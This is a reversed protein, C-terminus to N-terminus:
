KAQELDAIAEDFLALVEAQTRGPQDNWVWLADSFGRLQLVREVALLADVDRWVAGVACWEVARDSPEVERGDAARANVHQCWGRAIRERARRLIEVTTM